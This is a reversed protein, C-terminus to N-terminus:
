GCEKGIRLRVLGFRAHKLRYHIGLLLLLGIQLPMCGERARGLNNGRWCSRQLQAVLSDVRANQLTRVFPLQRFRPGGDGNAYTACAVAFGCSSFFMVKAM